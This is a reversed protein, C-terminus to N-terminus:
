EAFFAPLPVDLFVSFVFYAVCSFIVALLVAAKINRYGLSYMVYFSLLTTDAIYGIKRFLFVYCSLVALFEIVKPVNSNRFKDVHDNKVLDFFLQFAGVVLTFLGIMYPFTGEAKGMSSTSSIVYISFFVFFIPMSLNIAKSRNM